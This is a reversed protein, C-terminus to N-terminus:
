RSLFNSEVFSWYFVFGRLIKAESSGYATISRLPTQEELWLPKEKISKIGL